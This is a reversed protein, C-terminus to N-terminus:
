TLQMFGTVECTTGAAGTYQGALTAGADLSIDYFLFQTSPNAAGPVVVRHFEIFSIAGATGTSFGIDVSDTALTAGTFRLAFNIRYVGRETVRSPNYIQAGVPFTLFTFIVDTTPGGGSLAVVPQVTDLLNYTQGTGKLQFFRSWYSLDRLIRM